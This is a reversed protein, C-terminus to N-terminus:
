RPRPPGAAPKWSFATKGCPVAGGLCQESNTSVEAALAPGLGQGRVEDLDGGPTHELWPELLSLASNLGPLSLDPQAALGLYRRRCLYNTRGKLVAWTLDPALAERLLPLEKGQVQDQLTRTGTSVVVKLGSAAAPALYALTKGTGTGAEVVLPVQQRLAKSVEAAM